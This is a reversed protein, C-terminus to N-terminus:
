SWKNGVVAPGRSFLLAMLFCILAVVQTALGPRPVLILATMSTRRCAMVSIRVVCSVDDVGFMM